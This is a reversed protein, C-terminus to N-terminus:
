VGEPFPAQPGPDAGAQGFDAVHAGLRVAAQQRLSEKASYLLGQQASIGLQDLFGEPYGPNRIKHSGLPQFAHKARATISNPYSTAFQQSQVHDTCSSLCLRLDLIHLVFATISPCMVVIVVCRQQM